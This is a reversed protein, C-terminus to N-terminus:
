WRRGFAQLHSKLTQHAHNFTDDSGPSPQALRAPAPGFHFSADQPFRIAQAREIYVLTMIYKDISGHARHLSLTINNLDEDRWESETSVQGRYM